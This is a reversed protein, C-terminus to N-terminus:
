DMEDSAADFLARVLDEPMENVRFGSAGVVYSEAVIPAHWDAEWDKQVM